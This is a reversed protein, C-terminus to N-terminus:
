RLKQSDSKFDAQFIAEYGGGEELMQDHSRLVLRSLSSAKHTQERENCIAYGRQQEHGQLSDPRQNYDRLVAGRFEM